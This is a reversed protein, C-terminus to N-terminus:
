LTDPDLPPPGSAPKRMLLFWRRGFLALVLAGYLAGGSLALALL